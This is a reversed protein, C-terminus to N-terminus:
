GAAPASPGAVAAPEAAGGGRQADRAPEKRGRRLLVPVDAGRLVQDSVSGLALRALGTRGHTTMALLDVAHARAYDLVAQAPSPHLAVTPHVRLGRDRLRAAVGALYEEARDPAAGGEEAGPGLAAISPPPTLMVPPVVVHLLTYEADALRGLEIAPELIQEALPSGDLPILIHRFELPAEQATGDGHPRLLLVPVWAERVLADAEELEGDYSALRDVYPVAWVPRHVHVLHLDVRAKRALERALPLVQESFISGDLPVMIAGDM